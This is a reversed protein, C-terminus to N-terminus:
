QTVASFINELQTKQAADVALEFQRGATMLQVQFHSTKRKRTCKCINSLELLKLSLILRKQLSSKLNLFQIDLRKQLHNQLHTLYRLSIVELLQLVM